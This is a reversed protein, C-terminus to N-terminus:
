WLKTKLQVLLVFSFLLILMIILIWQHTHQVSKLHKLENWWILYLYHKWGFPRQKPIRKTIHIVFVTIIMTIILALYRISLRVKMNLSSDPVEVWGLRNKKKKSFVKHNNKNNAKKQSTICCTFPFLCKPRYCSTIISAVQITQLISHTICNL